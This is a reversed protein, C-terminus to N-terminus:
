FDLGAVDNSERSVMRKRREEFEGASLLLDFTMKEPKQNPTQNVGSKM